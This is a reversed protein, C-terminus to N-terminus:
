RMENRIQIMVRVTTGRGPQPKIVFRGNVLRVREQMGLLGLRQKRKAGTPSVHFSKGNDVIEMLLHEGAKRFVVNVHTARAHKAVNTLSEQAVRFLVTKQDGDLGEAVANARLRVRLGTREAFSKIHSRLAPVLGLEDLLAPRLERAFHHISEMTKELLNQTEALKKEFFKSKAAAEDHKLAALTVSIATLAQGTEDHLERSIRRREDEQAHLIKNSLQRWAEEALRRETMDRTVKAFGLLKGAHGRVPSIIVNAWFRSNNKRVRWGEGEYRGQRLAIEIERRPQGKRIDDATFFQSYHAGIVENEHWGKIREAGANWSAVRGDPTL